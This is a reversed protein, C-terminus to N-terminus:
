NVMESIGQQVSVPYEVGLEKFSHSNEIILNNTLKNIIVPKFIRLLKWFLVSKFSRNKLGLEESIIQTLSTLSIGEEDALVIIGDLGKVIIGRIAQTLNNINLFQRQNDIGNFPLPLKTKVVRILQNMNGPASKSGYVMSPRLCVVSFQKNSMSRLAYDAKLKYKGYHNVPRCITKKDIFEVDGYVAITSIQIFQSCGSKQAMNALFVPLQYNILDYLIEDKLKPQHVIATFNIVVDINKFNSESLKFYDDINIANNFNLKNRSVPHINFYTHNKKIFEQAIYSKGGVVLINKKRM